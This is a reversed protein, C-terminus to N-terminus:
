MIHGANKKRTCLLCETLTLGRKRQGRGKQDDCAEDDEEGAEKDEKKKPRKRRKRVTKM